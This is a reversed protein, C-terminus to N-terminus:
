SSQAVGEEGCRSEVSSRYILYWTSISLVFPSSVLHLARDYVLQDLFAPPGAYQIPLWTKVLVARRHCKQFQETFWVLALTIEKLMLSRTLYIEKHGVKM